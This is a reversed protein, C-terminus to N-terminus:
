AIAWGECALQHHFVINDIEGASRRFQYDFEVAALMVILDVIIRLACGHQLAKAPADDTEPVAVNQGVRFTGSL